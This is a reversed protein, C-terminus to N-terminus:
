SYAEAALWGRCYAASEGPLPIRGTKNHRWGRLWEAKLDLEREAAGPTPTEYPPDSIEESQGHDIGYSLDDFRDAQHMAQALESTRDPHMPDSFIEIRAVDRQSAADVAHRAARWFEGYWTEYTYVSRLCTSNEHVKDITVRVCVKM